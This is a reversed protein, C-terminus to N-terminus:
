DSCTKTATIVLDYNARFSEISLQGFGGAFHFFEKVMEPVLFLTHTPESRIVVDDSLGDPVFLVLIGGTRLMKRAEVLSQIPKFVHEFSHSAVVIDFNGVVGSESLVSSLNDWDGKFIRTPPYSNRGWVKGGFEIQGANYYKDVAYWQSYDSPPFVPYGGPGVELIYSSDRVTPFKKLIFQRMYRHPPTNAEFVYGGLKRKSYLYTKIAQCIEYDIGTARACAQLTRFDPYSCFFQYVAEVDKPRLSLLLDRTTKYHLFFRALRRKAGRLIRIERDKAIPAEALPM